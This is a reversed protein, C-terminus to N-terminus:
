RSRSSCSWFQQSAGCTGLTSLCAGHHLRGCRSLTVCRCASPRAIPALPKRESVPKAPRPLGRGPLWSSLTSIASDRGNYARHLVGFRSVRADPTISVRRRPRATRVNCTTRETPHPELRPAFPPTRTSSRLCSKQMRGAISANASSCGDSTSSTWDLLEEAVGVDLGGLDVRM